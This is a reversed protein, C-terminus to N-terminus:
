QSHHLGELEVAEHGSIVSQTAFTTKGLHGFIRRATPADKTYLHSPVSGRVNFEDAVKAARNLTYSDTITGRKKNERFNRPAVVKSKQLVISGISNFFDLVPRLRFNRM